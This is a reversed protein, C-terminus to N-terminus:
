PAFELSIQSTISILPRIIEIGYYFLGVALNRLVNHVLLQVVEIHSGRKAQTRRTLRDSACQRGLKQVDNDLADADSSDNHLVYASLLNTEKGVVAVKGSIV